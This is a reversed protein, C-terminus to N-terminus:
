RSHPLFFVAAAAGSPIPIGVMIYLATSLLESIEAQTLREAQARDPIVFDQGAGNQPVAWYCCLLIVYSAPDICVTVHM